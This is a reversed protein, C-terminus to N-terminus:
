DKMLFFFFIVCRNFYYETLVPLPKQLTRVTYPGSPHYLESYPQLLILILSSDYSFIRM